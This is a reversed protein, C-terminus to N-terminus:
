VVVLFNFFIIASVIMLYFVVKKVFGHCISGYIRVLESVFRMSDDYFILYWDNLRLLGYEMKGIVKCFWLAVAKWKIIDASEARLHLFKSM